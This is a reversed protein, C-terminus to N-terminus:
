TDLDQSNMRFFTGRGKGLRGKSAASNLDFSQNQKKSNRM